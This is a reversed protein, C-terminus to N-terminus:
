IPSQIIATKPRNLKRSVYLAFNALGDPVDDHKNRGAISYSTLFSMMKGYDSKRGYKDHTLFLVNQKIWEANVIIRTEKNTETPHTIISCTSGQEQVRKQVEFAIRSGGANSEFEVQQANHRVIIDTCRGYQVNFDANDDCICDVLYFDNDFKYFLPLFMYDIGTTKTDCIGLIADPEREPLSSFRRLDNEDYLLGEREVPDQMYLCRYSIDDMLREIDHFQEATFGGIDYMFNSKGTKVNIAPVAIFEVRDSDNYSAQLRGIIDLVSWRTAIHLEKCFTGDASQVKRQRADVTYAGWLKDLTAKNLAEELSGIMDDVFLFRSARVKGANKSGVSTCQVSPFPKYKGVNFQEMKANTGTIRLNPFIEHWTYEDSNSIIDYVGNYYMRTIDGSHSYFLSYDKPFWGAVASHFFKELSTKGTGPPLSVTLIDIEDDILRQFAQPVGHSRLVRRRPIYFKDEPKRNKELYFCYSDFQKNMAEMRLVSWFIDNVEPVRANAEEDSPNKVANEVFKMCSLKLKNCLDIIPKRNNYDRKYVNDCFAIFLYAKETDLLDTKLFVDYLDQEEQNFSM